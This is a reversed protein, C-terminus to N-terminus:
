RQLQETMRQIKERARREGRFQAVKAGILYSLWDPRIAANDALWGPLRGQMCLDLLVFGGDSEKEVMFAQNEILARDVPVSKGAVLDSIKGERPACSVGLGGALAEMRCACELSESVCRRLVPEQAMMLVDLREMQRVDERLMQTPNKVGYSKPAHASVDRQCVKPLPAAAVVQGCAPVSWQILIVGAILVAGPLRNM